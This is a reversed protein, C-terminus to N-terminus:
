HTKFDNRTKDKEGFEYLLKEKIPKSNIVLPLTQPSYFLKSFKVNIITSIM